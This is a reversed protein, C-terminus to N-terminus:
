LIVCGEEIYMHIGAPITATTETPHKGMSVGSGSADVVVVAVAGAAAARSVQFKVVFLVLVICLAHVCVLYHM